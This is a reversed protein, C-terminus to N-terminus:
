PTDYLPLICGEPPHSGLEIRPVGVASSSSSHDTLFVWPAIAQGSVLRDTLHLNSGFIRLAHDRKQILDPAAAIQNLNLATKIWARMPELRRSQTHELDIIKEELSKKKSMLNTKKALYVEREIDQELYSDLLRELKTKITSIENRTEGVCATMSQATEAQETDLRNTMYEAWDSRLSVTQLLSSLQTNLNEERIFPAACKITKSKRTCRYYVYGKQIEATIMMNCTGCRLLGCFSQPAYKPKHRPRGRQKLVEHVQDFLKKAILPEHKGEHMEKAYIFNGYYFPNNLISTIRNIHVRKEGSSLINHEALFTAVDELRSENKAYLEFAGIISKSKKRDIVITKTRPDNLYGVPAVGPFHGMRVKQRLGRKTNESLSDVYYKSQGFAINLMFKGQPTTDTWYTPFKLSLIRGCDMLHIVQGGDVSNRALRDPNWSIIGNAEGREIRRLMEGFIPRGPIKATQKEILEDIIELNETKAFSRLETLQAEISLVQKDDVDTSKRAYLIYKFSNMDSKPKQFGLRRRGQSLESVPDHVGSKRISGADSQGIPSRDLWRATPKESQGNM